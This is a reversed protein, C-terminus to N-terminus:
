LRRAAAVIQLLGHGQAEPGYGPLRVCSDLIAPVMQRPERVSTAGDSAISWLLAAGGSVHPAAMSTGSLTAIATHFERPEITM